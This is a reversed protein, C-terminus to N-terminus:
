EVVKEETPQLMNQLKAMFTRNDLDSLMELTFFRDEGCDNLETPLMQVMITYENM